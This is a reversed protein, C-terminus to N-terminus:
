IKSILKCINGGRGWGKRSSRPLNTGEGTQSHSIPTPYCHEGHACSCNLVELAQKGDVFQALTGGM